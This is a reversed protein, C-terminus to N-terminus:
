LPGGLTGAALALSAAACLATSYADTAANRAAILQTEALLTETVSGLGNEYADLAADHTTEAASVLALAADRAALSSKLTTEALVVQRVAENRVGALTDDAKGIGARAQEVRAARRGGDYIAVTMGLLVTFGVEHGSLNLTPADDGLGPLATLDIHSTRYAGTAALFLKPLFAAQAARLNALSAQQAAHVSLMDPRVELAHAITREVPAILDVSLRREPLDALELKSLPSVGMAALLSLYTDKANGEAQVRVLEAQATAQHAQAVEVVTGIGRGLRARAATEVERADALGMEASKLHALTAANAYFALTVEYIIRQHAATFGINSILSGQKAAEVLAARGGFDFLLWRLSVAALAGAASVKDDASFGSASNEGHGYQYAGVVSASIEPLYTSEAIGTALAAQRASQWAARTTPNNSEALDILEPLTYAHKPDLRSPPEPLAALAPNEPLVHRATESRTQASPRGARLEGNKGVAPTWAQDPRPPAADIAQTACGAGLCAYLGIWAFSELRGM